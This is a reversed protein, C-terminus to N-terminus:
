KDCKVPPLMTLSIPDANLVFDGYDLRLSRTVGNDYLDLGLVYAPPQDKTDAEFYSIFIPWRRMNKFTDIQFLKESPEVTPPKGIITLTEYYKGGDGSGDYVRAEFLKQGERAAALIKRMHETPFVIPGPVDLKGRKPKALDVQLGPPKPRKAVGDSEELGGENTKTVIKFRYEGGDGAEFTNSRMDSYQATGEQPQLETIQRFNQVYGDCATGSFDFAIRGHAQAPAKSGSSRGLTLEYVARHPALPPAAEARAELRPSLVVCVAFLASAACRHLAM